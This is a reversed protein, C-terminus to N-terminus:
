TPSSRSRRRAGWSRRSPIHTSACPTHSCLHAGKTMNESKCGDQESDDSGKYREAGPGGSRGTDSCSPTGWGGGSGLIEVEPVACLRTCVSGRSHSTSPRPGRRICCSGPLSALLCGGPEAQSGLCGPGTSCCSSTAPHPLRLCGAWWCGPCSPPPRHWVASAFAM